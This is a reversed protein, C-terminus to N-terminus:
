TYIYVFINWIDLKDADRILKSFLLCDPSENDPLKPLNHYEVANCILNQECESLCSLLRTEKLIKVGLAAHNESKRDDFTGYTKFQKFRGIDHFLAITEALYLENRELDISKGILVINKCVRLTHEEKHKINEQLKILGESYFNKVYNNFWSHFFLLNHKNM